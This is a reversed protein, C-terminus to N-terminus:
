LTLGAHQLFHFALDPHRCIRAFGCRLPRRLALIETPCVNALERGKVNGWIQEVPNLDPAYGPLREVHLWARHRALYRTMRGSRHAPLGDWLLIIARGRFHQKLARLFGILRGDTYTGPRTQFYM